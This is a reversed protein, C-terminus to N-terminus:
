GGRGATPDLKLVYVENGGAVDDGGAVYVERDGDLGLAQAEDRTVGGARRGSSRGEATTVQPGGRGPPQLDRAAYQRM